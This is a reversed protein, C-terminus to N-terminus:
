RPSRHRFEVAHGLRRGLARPVASLGTRGPVAAVVQPPLLLASGLGVLDRPTRSSRLVYSAHRVADDGPFRRERVEGAQARLALPLGAPTDAFRPASAPLGITAAVVTLSVRDLHTLHDPWTTPDAALRHVDVLSRLSDWRDKAAHRLSHVFADTASLTMVERPGVRVPTRRRWLDAFRPLGDHTADLRWHLDVHGHAGELAVENGVRSQHRWAWTSRDTTSAEQPVWGHGLLADVAAGLDRPAVLVDVDGPGRGTPDGTTQVALAAGKLFLHDIGALQDDVETLTRIAAMAELRDQDAMEQIVDALAGTLGLREAVGAVLPAVRHRGVADVFDQAPVQDAWTWPTALLASRTARRVLSVAAPTLVHGTQGTREGGSRM